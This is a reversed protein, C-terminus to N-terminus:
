NYIWLYLDIDTDKLVETIIGEIRKWSGGALGAGIMPMHVNRAIEPYENLFDVIDQFCHGIAQYDVFVTQDEPVDEHNKYFEQTVANAVYLNEEVHSYVVDGTELGYEDYMAKYDDYVVPWKNKIVLAVGSGMKGQANCGHVIVGGKKLFANDVLNGNLKNYQM